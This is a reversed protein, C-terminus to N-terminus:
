GTDFSEQDAASLLSRNVGQKTVGVEVMTRAHEAAFAINGLAMAAYQKVDNADQKHLISMLPEIAGSAVSAVSSIHRLENAICDDLVILM